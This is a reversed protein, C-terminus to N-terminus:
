HQRGSKSSKSSRFLGELAILSPYKEEDRVVLEENIEESESGSSSESQLLQGIGPLLAEDGSECDSEPVIIEPDVFYNLRDLGLVKSTLTRNWTMEYQCYPLGPNLEWNM